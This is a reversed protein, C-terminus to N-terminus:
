PNDNASEFLEIFELRRSHDPQSIRPSQILEQRIQSTYPVWLRANRPSIFELPVVKLSRKDREAAWVRIRDSPVKNAIQGGAHPETIWRSVLNGERVYPTRPTRKAGLWHPVPATSVVPEDQSSRIGTGPVLLDHDYGAGKPISRPGPNPMRRRTREQVCGDRASTHGNLDQYRRHDFAASRLAEANFDGPFRRGTDRRRGLQPECGVAALAIMRQRPQFRVYDQGSTSAERPSVRRNLAGGVSVYRSSWITGPGRDRSM